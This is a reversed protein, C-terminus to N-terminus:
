KSHSNPKVAVIDDLKIYQMGQHSLIQLSSTPVDISQIIGFVVYSRRQHPEKVVIKCPKGVLRDLSNSEMDGDWFLHINHLAYNRPPKYM